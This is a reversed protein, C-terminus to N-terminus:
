SLTEGVLLTYDYASNFSDYDDFKLHYHYKTRHRFNFVPVFFIMVEFNFIVVNKETDSFVLTIM